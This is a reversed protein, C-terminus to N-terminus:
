PNSMTQSSPKAQSNLQQSRERIQNYNVTLSKDKKEKIFPTYHAQGLLLDTASVKINAPDLSDVKEQM